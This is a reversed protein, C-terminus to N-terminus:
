MVVAEPTRAHELAMARWIRYIRITSPDTVLTKDAVEGSQTFRMLVVRNHDFMQWDGREIGLSNATQRSLYRVDEGAERHWSACWLSWKQYDSPPSDIIRVRAITKGEGTWGRVQDLWSQWVPFASPPRPSGALFSALAEAEAPSTRYVSAAEIRFADSCERFMGAYEDQSVTPM